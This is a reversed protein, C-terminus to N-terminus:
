GKWCMTVGRCHCRHASGWNMAPKLIVPYGISAAADAIAETSRVRRFGPQPLGAKQWAERMLGKHLCRLAVDPALNPLGLQHSAEAAALVGAENVALILDVGKRRAFETVAATDRIDIVAHDEVLAFGPADAAGDAALMRLGSEQLKRISHCM